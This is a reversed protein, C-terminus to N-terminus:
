NGATEDLQSFYQKVSEQYKPPIQNDSIAEAANDRASQMVDALPRHSQGKQQSGKFYWSAVVPGEGAPSNVRTTKATTDGQTDSNRPGYGIGPGGTGGGSKNSNGARWPGQKGPGQCQGQGLCAIANEIEDLTAQTLKIQKQFSELDSFQDALEALSEASLGGEAGSAAAMAEALSSCRNAAMRCAAAKQLLEEIKKADLGKKALMERLQKENLKALKKDLGQKQLENELLNKEDALAKIQQALNRMQESLNRKQQDSLEGRELQKQMQRLLSAAQPFKGQALAHRFEQSLEQGSAGKLQRLMKQMMALADAQGQNQMKEVRQALDGLKRIAQRPPTNLAASQALSELSALDADLQPDGLQKVALKVRSTSDQVLQRDQEIKRAQQQQNEKRALFGLLDKQPLFGVLLLLVLWILSAYGWCRTPKIPFQRACQVQDARRRIERLAQQAFPSSSQALALATSFREHLKLRGDVLLAVQFANPRGFWWLIVTAALIAAGATWFVPPRYLSVACFREILIAFVALSGAVISVAGAKQLFLNLSCRRRVQRLKKEFSELM